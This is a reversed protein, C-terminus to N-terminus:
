PHSPPLNNVARLRDVIYPGVGILVNHHTECLLWQFNKAVIYYEFAPLGGLVAEITEVRGEFLWYNGDCKQRDWDETLLWVRQNPPLLRPLWRYGKAEELHVTCQEGKFGEWLWLHDRGQTGYVTFTELIQHLITRYQNARVAALDDPSLQLAKLVTAIETRM